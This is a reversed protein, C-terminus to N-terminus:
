LARRHPSIRLYETSESALGLIDFIRKKNEGKVESLKINSIM